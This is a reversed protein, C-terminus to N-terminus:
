IILVVGTCELTRPKLVPRSFAWGSKNKQKEVQSFAKLYTVISEKWLTVKSWVVYAVPYIVFLVPDNV